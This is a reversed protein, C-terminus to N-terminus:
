PLSLSVIPIYEATNQNGAQLKNLDFSFLGLEIREYLAKNKLQRAEYELWKKGLIKWKNEHHYYRIRNSFHKLLKPYSSVPSSDFLPVQEHLNIANGKKDYLSIVVWGLESPPNPAYMHWSQRIISSGEFNPPTLADVLQTLQLKKSLSALHGKTTITKLNIQINIFILLLLIACRVKQQVSTPVYSVQIQVNGPTTNNTKNFFRNWFVAPLLLCAAATAVFNFSGVDVFINIGWHFLLIAIAAILRTIHKYFPVFILFLISAEFLLTAYNLFYCIGDQLYLSEAFSTRLKLDLLITKIATGEMWLNGNKSLFNVFYIFSIQLLIAFSALGYYNNSIIKEKNKENSFLSFRANLPLFMSWFLLVNLYIDWGFVFFPQRQHLNWLCFYALLAIIKSRYGLTFLLYIVFSAIFFLYVVIPSAFVNLLSFGKWGFTTTHFHTSFLADPLYAWDINAWKVLVLDYLLNVGLIIRFLGISRTDLHSIKQFFTNLQQFFPM